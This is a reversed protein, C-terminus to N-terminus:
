SASLMSLDMVVHSWVRRQVHGETSTGVGHPTELAVFCSSGHGKRGAEQKVRGM